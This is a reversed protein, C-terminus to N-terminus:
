RGAEASSPQLASMIHRSVEALVEDSSRSADVVLTRCPLSRALKLYGERQEGLRRLSHEQKRAYLVEPPADLIIALDPAPLSHGLIWRAARDLRGAPGRLRADYPYRDFIVVRGRAQHFRAALYRRWQRLLRAALGIGPLSPHRERAYLEMHVTWVPLPLAGPLARALTSKGAGDPALLAIGAGRRSLGM